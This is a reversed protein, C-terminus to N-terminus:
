DDWYDSNTQILTEIGFLKYMFDEREDFMEVVIVEDQQIRYILYNRNTHLIRYDCEIDYMSSLPLGLEEFEGLSDGAQLINKIVRKAVKLGFREILQLKLKKLKNCVIHSYEVKKM